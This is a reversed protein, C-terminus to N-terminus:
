YISLLLKVKATITSQDIWSTGTATSSLVQGSTGALNSSDYYAGTVRVSGTVHLKQSPSTNGIGVEGLFYSDDNSDVNLSDYFEIAM